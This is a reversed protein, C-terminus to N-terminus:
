FNSRLVRIGTFPWINELKDWPKVSIVYLFDLFYSGRSYSGGHCSVYPDEGNDEPDYEYSDYSYEYVNGSMDYIGLENPLKKGVPKTTIGDEGDAPEWFIAYDKPANSGNSGAFKKYIGTTNVGESDIAGEQSDKDAGMAAWKWEESTPLRYGNADWDCSAKYWKINWEEPVSAFDLNEWDDVGEVAYVLELGEALSLKNCFYLAQYWNINQVPDNMGTSYKTDSPDVGIIDLFEQRTILYKGMKFPKTIVATNDPCDPYYYNKPVHFKGAPVTVLEILSTEYNNDEMPCATLVMALGLVYLAKKM